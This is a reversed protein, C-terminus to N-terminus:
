KAAVIRNTLSGVEDIALTITDGEKLWHDNEMACGGPLTGTGFVEGPHLQEDKSAQVLIDAISHYSDRTSTECICSGNIEIRADLNNIKDLVLSAPTITESMTNIFHKSKQPGFGSKMEGLQKDRASFDNLIVFGGIADLAQQKTANKISRCLVVGLELEYDFSQTYSPIEVDTGSVSFNLHNGMYYIPQQYWIAKPKIMPFTTNFLKEYATVIPYIGSMFHKVFGRGADIIHKEYIMFDRFSKAQFPLNPLTNEKEEFPKSLTADALIPEIEKWNELVSLISNDEITFTDSLSDQLSFWQEDKLYVVEKINSSNTALKLQM